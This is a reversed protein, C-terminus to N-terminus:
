IDQLNVLGKPTDLILELFPEGEEFIIAEPLNDIATGGRVMLQKLVALPEEATSPHDSDLWDIAFPEPAYDMGPTPKILRWSLTTGDPTQRNMDKIEASAQKAFSDLDDPRVCWAAVRPETAKTSALAFNDETLKEAEPDPGILEVYSGEPTALPVLANASGVDHRGGEVPTIGTLEIFRTVLENLDPAAIVIHDLHTTM